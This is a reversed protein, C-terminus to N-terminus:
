FRYALGFEAYDARFLHTKLSLNVAMHETFYYRLGVRSYLLGDKQYTDLVYVGTQLFLQMQDIHLTYGGRIGLQTNQWWPIM